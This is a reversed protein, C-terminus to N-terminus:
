AARRAKVGSVPGEYLVRSSGHGHWQMLSVRAMDIGNEEYLMTEVAGQWSAAVTRMNSAKSGLRSAEGRTGKVTGIFHAM